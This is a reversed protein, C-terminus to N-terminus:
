AVLRNGGSYITKADLDAPVVRRQMEIANFCLERTQTVEILWQIIIGSQELLWSEDRCIM